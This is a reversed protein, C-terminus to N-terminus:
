RVTAAPPAGTGFVGGAPPNAPARTEPLLPQGDRGADRRHDRHRDRRRDDDDDDDYRDVDRRDKSKWKVVALTQPDLKAKFRAGEANVGRIEYCGDDIKIRDVQWGQAQAMQQVAARPQWRDMPVQCDDDDAFAAGGAGVLGAVVAMILIRKKM